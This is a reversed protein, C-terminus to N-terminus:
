LKSGVGKSVCSTDLPQKGSSAPNELFGAAERLMKWISRNGPKNNVFLPSPHPTTFRELGLKLSAVQPRAKRGMFVVARVKPLMQILRPLPLLGAEVM